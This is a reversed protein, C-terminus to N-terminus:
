SPLGHMKAFCGPVTPGRQALLYRRRHAALRYALPPVGAVRRFLTSFSGLSQFGVELCVDTVPLESTTLLEKARAIRREVLYQHPTRDFAQKFVRIFHYRSFCARDAIQDLDIPQDYHQDIFRRARWLRNQLDSPRVVGTLEPSVM